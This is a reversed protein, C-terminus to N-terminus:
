SLPEDLIRKVNVSDQTRILMGISSEVFSALPLRGRLKSRQIGLSSTTFPRNGLADWGTLHPACAVDSALLETKLSQKSRCGHVDKASALPECLFSM